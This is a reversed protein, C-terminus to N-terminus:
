AQACPSRQVGNARTFHRSRRSCNGTGTIRGIFGFVGAGATVTMGISVMILSWVLRQQVFFQQTERLYAVIGISLTACSVRFGYASEPTGLIRSFGRIFNGFRQWSSTPPLHEPDKQSRLSDGVYTGSSGTENSELVNEADADDVRVASMVWKKIRRPGPIIIRKENLVGDEVKADAFHVLDLIARGTTHLLFEM